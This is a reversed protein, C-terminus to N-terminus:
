YLFPGLTAEKETISKEGIGIHCLRRFEV